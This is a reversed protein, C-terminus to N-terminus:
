VAVPDADDTSYEIRAVAVTAEKTTELEVEEKDASVAEVTEEFFRVTCFFRCILTWVVMTIVIGVLWFMNEM